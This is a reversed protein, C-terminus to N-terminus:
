PVIKSFLKNLNSRNEIYELRRDIYWLLDINYKEALIFLCILSSEIKTQLSAAKRNFFVSFAFNVDESFSLKMIFKKAVFYDKRLSKNMENLDLQKGGAWHFFCIALCALVDEKRNKIHNSFQVVFWEENSCIHELSLALEFLAKEAYLMENGATWVKVLKRGIYLNYKWSAFLYKKPGFTKSYFIKDRLENFNYTDVVKVKNM